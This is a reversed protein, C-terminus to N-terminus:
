ISSVNGAELIPLITALLLFGVGVALILILVPEVFATLRASSTAVQKNYDHALRQLMEELKGSDQGVSFFRIVLPPFVSKQEMAAAVDEGAEMEKEVAQLAERLVTNSTSQAALRIADTLMVGGKCLLSVIMAIRATAQKLLLTGVFPLRLVQRDVFRRGRDTRWLALGVFLLIVGLIALWIGHELLLDSVTKAVRTPWPLVALTEQLSELLPPLVWTMLFLMAAFAFLALFVPYLLATTVRDKFDSLQLRFEAVEALVVELTGAKEGVEVLRISAPDYVQTQEEMAKALGVGAEVRDRLMMISTRTAGKHQGTLADLAEALPIGAALLMSLEHAVLGWQAAATRQQIGKVSLISTLRGKAGAAQEIGQVRIGRERLQDRAHRPSDAIITGTMRQRTNDVGSYQFVPM